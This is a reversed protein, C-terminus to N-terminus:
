FRISLAGFFTSGRGWWYLPAFLPQERGQDEKTAAANANRGQEFGGTKYAANLVNQASFFCGLYYQKYKWSKSVFANLLFHAPLAEQELLSWAAKQEQPSFPLDGAHMFFSATRKLPNPPLYNATFYSGTLNFRWYDPDNYQMGLAFAQQPGNGLFYHRLQSPGFDKQGNDFGLAVATATPTSYLWLQPDNAYTHQGVAAAMSFTLAELPQLRWGLEIGRHHTTMNQMVEQVFLPHEGGVRDAYYQNVQSDDSSTIWYGTLQLLTWPQQWRYRLELMGRQTAKLQPATFHNERPNPFVTRLRPPDWRWQGYLSWHHRGNPFFALGTTLSGNPLAVEPGPGLSHEPFRGNQFLGTRQMQRYGWHGGMTWRMTPWTQTRFVRLAAETVTMKYHYGFPTHLGVAKPAFRLDNNQAEGQAFAELNYVKQAGLLDIPQAYSHEKQSRLHLLWQWQVAPHPRLRLLAQATWRQQDVVDELLAYRASGDAITANAQRLAAWDLQPSQRLQKEAYYAGLINPAHGYRLHYSPLRQYYVPNPSRGGGVFQSGSPRLGNYFLRTDGQQGSSFHYQFQLTKQPSWRWTKELLFSPRQLRRMRANRIEGRDTGWHPNYATGMLGAVEDTMPARKGRQHPSYWFLLNLENTGRKKGVMGLLAHGRYVTGPVWGAGGRRSLLVSYAWGSPRPGSHYHFMQRHRYTQNSFAQSVGMGKQFNFPSLSINVQGLAGPFFDGQASLGYHVQQSRNLVANLGGWQSWMARGTTLDNMLVGNIRVPQASRDLGRPSFFAASFQFAMASVFPSRQAQLPMLYGMGPDTGDDQGMAAFDVLPLAEQVDRSPLLSWTGVDITTAGELWLPLIRQAYGKKFLLLESSAPMPDPYVLHFHGTADTITPSTQGSLAVTVNPLPQGDATLVRGTIAPSQGCVCAGFLLFFVTLTRM